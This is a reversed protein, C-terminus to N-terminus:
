EQLIKTAVKPQDSYYERINSNKYEAKVAYRICARELIQTKNGKELQRTDNHKNIMQSDIPVADRMRHGNDRPAVSIELTRTFRAVDYGQATM